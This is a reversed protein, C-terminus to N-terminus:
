KALWEVLDRSLRELAINTAEVYGIADISKTPIEYNFRRSKILRNNSLDILDFRITVISLSIDKRIKHYLHYIESELLYDTTSISRYDVISDFVKGHELARIIISSILQSSSSSWSSNQYSNDELRNYSYYINTGSRGIIDNPYSIKISSDSYRSHVRGFSFDPELLYRKM